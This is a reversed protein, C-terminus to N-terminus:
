GQLESGDITFTVNSLSADAKFQTTLADKICGITTEATIQKNKHCSQAADKVM